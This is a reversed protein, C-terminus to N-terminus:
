CDLKENYQKILIDFKLLSPLFKTETPKKLRLIKLGVFVNGNKKEFQSSYDFICEAASYIQKKCWM